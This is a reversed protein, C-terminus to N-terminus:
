SIRFDFPTGVFRKKKRWSYWVKWLMLVSIFFLILYGTTSYNWKYIKMCMYNRSKWAASLSLVRICVSLQAGWDNRIFNWLEFFLIYIRQLAIIKKNLNESLDLYLWREATMSAYWSNIAGSRMTYWVGFTNMPLQVCINICNYALWCVMEIIGNGTQISENVAGIYVCKWNREVWLLQYYM